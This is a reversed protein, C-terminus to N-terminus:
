AGSPDLVDAALDDDRVRLLVGVTVVVHGPDPVAEDVDVARASSQEAADRGCDRSKRLEGHPIAIAGVAEPAEAAIQQDAVEAVPM